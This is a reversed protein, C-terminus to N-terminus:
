FVKGFHSPGLLECVSSSSYSQRLTITLIMKNQINYSSLTRGDELVEGCLKLVHDNELIRWQGNAIMTKVDAITNARNVVLSINASLSNKVFIQMPKNVAGKLTKKVKGAM